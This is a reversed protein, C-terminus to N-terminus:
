GLPKFENPIGNTVKEIANSFFPNAKQKHTGFNVHYAYEASPIVEGSLASLNAVHISGKLNGTKVPANDQAEAVTDNCLKKIIKEAHEKTAAQIKVTQNIIETIM